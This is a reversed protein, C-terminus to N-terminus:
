SKGKQIPNQKRIQQKFFIRFISPLSDSTFYLSTFLDQVRGWYCCRQASTRAKDNLAQASGATKCADTVVAKNCHSRRLPRHVTVIQLSDSSLSVNILLSKEVRVCVHVFGRAFWGFSIELHMVSPGANCFSSRVLDFRPLTPPSRTLRTCWLCIAAPIDNNLSLPSRVLM